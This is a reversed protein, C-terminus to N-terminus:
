LFLYNFKQFFLYRSFYILLKKVMDLEMKSLMGVEEELLEHEKRVKQELIFNNDKLAKNEATLAKIEETALLYIYM